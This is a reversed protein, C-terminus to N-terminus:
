QGAGLTLLEDLFAKPGTYGVGLFECDVFTCNRVPIAGVVSQPSEPRLVMARVDQVNMGFAVRDFRNGDVVALVAPGELRCNRFTLGELLQRGEGYQARFLDFLSLGVNEFTTATLDEALTWTKDNM